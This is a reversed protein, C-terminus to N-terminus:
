IKYSKANSYTELNNLISRMFFVIEEKASLLDRAVLNRKAEAFSKDGHSLANRKVKVTVLAAGGRAEPPVTLTVGHDSCVRRVVDADINGTIPLHAHSMAAAQKAIVEKVIDSAIEMYVKPSGDFAKVKRNRQAIWQTRLDEILDAGCLKDAKISDFLEQFGRRLFAEVLNYLILYATGKLMSAWEAPPKGVPLVQGSTGPIVAIEANELSLLADFYLNVEKVREDFDAIVQAFM